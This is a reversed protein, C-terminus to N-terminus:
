SHVGAACYWEALAEIVRPDTMADVVLDAGTRALEERPHPGTAVAICRAGHAVAVAVDRPTDGIIAARCEPIALGTFVGARRLAVPLLDERTVADEAFAGFSFWSAMGVSELKVMGSARWNGTLLGSVFRADGELVGLLREVGPLACPRRRESALEHALLRTYHARFRARDDETLIRSAGRAADLLIVEDTRGALEVEQLASDVGFLERFTTEMAWRGAGDSSLLTGDIDWLLALPTVANVPRATECVKADVLAGSTDIRM